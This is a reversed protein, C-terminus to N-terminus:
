IYWLGCGCFQVIICLLCMTQKLHTVTFVSYLPSLYYYYYYYYVVLEKEECKLILIRNCRWSIKGEKEQGNRNEVEMTKYKMACTMIEFCKIETAQLGATHDERLVLYLFVSLAINIYVIM